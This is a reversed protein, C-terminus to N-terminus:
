KVIKGFTILLFGNEPVKVANAVRKRLQSVTATKKVELPFRKQNQSPVLLQIQM